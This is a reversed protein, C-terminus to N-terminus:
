FIQCSGFAVAVCTLLAAISYAQALQITEANRKSGAMMGCIIVTEIIQDAELASSELRNWSARSSSLHTLQEYM